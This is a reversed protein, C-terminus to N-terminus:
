DIALHVAAMGGLGSLAPGDIKMHLDCKCVRRVIKGAASVAAQFSDGMLLPLSRDRAGVCRVM